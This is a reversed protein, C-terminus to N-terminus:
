GKKGFIIYAVLAVTVSIMSMTLILNNGMLQGIVDGAASAGDADVFSDVSVDINDVPPKTVADMQDVADQMADAQSEMEEQYEDSKSTDGVLAKWIKQLWTIEAEPLESPIYGYGNHLSATAFTGMGQITIILDNTDTRQIGNLDVTLSVSYINVADGLGTSNGYSNFDPPNEIYNVTYPIPKGGIQVNINNISHTYYSLTFTMHDFKRWQSNRISSTWPANNGGLTTTFTESLTVLQAGSTQTVSQSELIFTSPSPLVQAAQSAAVLSYFQIVHGAVGTDFEFTFSTSYSGGYIGYVRYYATGSVPEVTLPYRGSGIVLTASNLTRGATSIYMDFYRTLTGYPLTFTASGIGASNTTIYFNGSDNPTSFELMNILQTQDTEIESAGVTVAMCSLLVAVTLFLSLFRTKM